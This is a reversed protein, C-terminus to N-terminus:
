VLLRVSTVLFWEMGVETERVPPRILGSPLGCYWFTTMTDFLYEILYDNTECNCIYM